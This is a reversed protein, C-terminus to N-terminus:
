PTPIGYGFLKLISEKAQDDSVETAQVAAGKVTIRFHGNCGNDANLWTMFNKAEVSSLDGDWDESGANPIIGVAAFIADTSNDNAITNAFKYVRQGPVVATVAGDVDIRDGWSSAISLGPSSVDGATTVTGVGKLLATVEDESMTAWDDNGPNRETAKEFVLMIGAYESETINSTNKILPDKPATVGPLMKKAIESGSTGDPTEKPTWKAEILEANINGAVFVNSETNTKVTLYALTGGGILAFVLLCSLIVVPIRRKKKDSAEEVRLMVEAM